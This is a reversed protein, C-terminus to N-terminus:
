LLDLAGASAAYMLATSGEQDKADIDSGKDLLLKLVELNGKQCALSLATNGELDKPNVDAGKDLRFKAVEIQAMLSACM